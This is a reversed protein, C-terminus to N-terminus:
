LGKECSNSLNVSNCLKEATKTIFDFREEDIFAKKVLNGGIGIGVAGSNIFEGANEENVGGVAMLDIYGLPARVAKIYSPGLVSAPFVKVIDAGLDHAKVIESPTMAGPMSILGRKKTERIVEESVNPSIIYQAGAEEAAAVQEATMVTGAGPLFSEGFHKHISQVTEVTRQIDGKQDFTVEILSIGGKHLAESLRLADDGYIGRVIAIIKKEKIYKLTDM